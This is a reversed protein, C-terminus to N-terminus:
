SYRSADMDHLIRSRFTEGYDIYESILHYMWRGKHSADCNNKWKSLIQDLIQSCNHKMRNVKRVIQLWMNLLINPLIGVKVYKVDYSLARYAAVVGCAFASRQCFSIITLSLSSWITLATYLLTSLVPWYDAGVRSNGM